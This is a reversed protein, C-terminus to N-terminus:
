KSVPDSYDGSDDLGRLIVEPKTAYQGKSVSLGYGTLSSVQGNIRWQYDYVRGDEDRCDARYRWSTSSESLRLDCKPPKNAIVTVSETAEVTKGHDSVMRVLIEHEGEDLSTRLYRTAGEVLQGDVEFEFSRVYDRPHGGDVRPSVSVELPSRMYRNSFYRRQEITYPEPAGFVLDDELVTEHGRSDTIRAKYYYTGPEPVVIKRMVDSYASEVELRPDLEWEYQLGELRNSRTLQRIRLLVEAPAVNANTNQYMAWEPWMYEWVRSELTDETTTQNRYGEVWGTYRIPLIGDELDAATPTYNFATKDAIQRGDPLTFYGEIQRNFGIYPEMRTVSFEYEKGAEVQRPGRVYIKPDKEERFSVGANDQEWAYRDDSPALAPKVRVWVNVADKEDRQLHFETNGEAWTRGLDTSWEVTLDELPVEVGDEDQVVANFTVDDGIFASRPGELSLTPVDYVIIRAKDTLSTAGSYQNTVRAEVEYIGPEEFYAVKRLRQRDNMGRQDVDWEGGKERVRWEISGSARLQDTTSFDIQFIGRYPAPGSLTRTEIAADLPNGELVTVYVPSSSYVTRQYEEVPSKLRAEAVLRVNNQDEPDLTVDFTASGDEADKFETLQKFDDRSVENVIRVEWEGMREASYAGDFRPDGIEVRVSTTDTNLVKRDEDAIYLYPQVKEGPVVLAKVQHNATIGPIETYGAQITLPVESFLPYTAEPPVRSMVLRERESMPVGFADEVLQEDESAVSVSLGGPGSRYFAKGLTKNAYPVTILEDEPIHPERDETEFARRNSNDTIFDISPMEPEQVLFSHTDGGVAVELGTRSYAVIEWSIENEGLKTAVGSFSPRTGPRKDFGSPLETIGLYCSLQPSEYSISEAYRRAASRESFFTCRSDSIDRLVGNVPRIHQYTSVLEPVISAVVSDSADEVTLTRRGEGVLMKEGTASYLFLEYAIDQEGLTIANGFLKSIHDDGSGGTVVETEIPMQTWQLLCIPDAIPDAQKAEAADMTVRCTNGINPKARVDVLDVLQKVEWSDASLGIDPVWTRINAVLIPANPATSTLLLTSDGIVDDEAPYANVSITSNNAAFDYQSSLTVTDGPELREGNIILPVEADARLSAVLDYEGVVPSGDRLKVTKSEIIRRGGPRYFPKSIAPLFADRGDGYALEVMPPEYSFSASEKSTNGQADKAVVEWTYTEDSSLSPFMLPYQLRYADDQMSATLYVDEDAPGGTFRITVPEPNPDTSDALTFTLQDLSEIVGSDFPQGDRQLTIQPADADILRTELPFTHDNGLSDVVHLEIEYTGSVPVHLTPEFTMDFQYGSKSLSSTPISTTEGDETSTMVLEATEMQWSNPEDINLGRVQAEYRPREEGTQYFQWAELQLKDIDGGFKFDLKSNPNNMTIPNGDNNFLVLSDISRAASYQVGFELGGDVDFPLSLVGGDTCCDAWAWQGQTSRNLRLEGGDDAVVVSTGDPLNTFRANYRGGTRDNQIDHVNIYFLEGNQVSLKIWSQEELQLLGEASANGYDYKEPTFRTPSYSIPNEDGGNVRVTGDYSLPWPDPNSWEEDAPKLVEYPADTDFYVQYQKSSLAAGSKDTLAAQITYMGEDQPRPVDLEYGYYSRGDVSIRNSSGIVGTLEEFFIEGSPAVLKLKLRRELGGALSFSMSGNPSAYRESSTLQKTDGDTGTFRYQLLDALLPPSSLAVGCTIVSLALTKIKHM